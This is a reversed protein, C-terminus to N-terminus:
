QPVRHAPRGATLHGQAYSPGCGPPGGHARAMLRHRGPGHPRAHGGGCRDQFPAKPAPAM